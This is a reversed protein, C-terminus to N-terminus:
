LPMEKDLWDIQQPRPWGTFGKPLKRGAILERFHEMANEPGMADMFSFEQSWSVVDILVTDKVKSIPIEQTFTVDGYRRAVEEKTMVQTITVSPTDPTLPPVTEVDPYRKRFEEISIDEIRVAMPRVMAEKAKMDEGNLTEPAPIPKAMFGTGITLCTELTEQPTLGRRKAEAAAICERSQRPDAEPLHPLRAVVARETLGMNGGLKALVADKAWASVTEGAEEAAKEVRDMDNGSVRIGLVRWRRNTPKVSFVEYDVLVM